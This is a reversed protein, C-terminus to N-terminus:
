QGPDRRGAPAACRPRSGRPTSPRPFRGRGPDARARRGPIDATYALAGATAPTSCPGGRRLTPRGRNTPSQVRIYTADLETAGAVLSDVYAALPLARPNSAILADDIKLAFGDAQSGIPVIKYRYRDKVIPMAGNVGFDARSDASQLSQM